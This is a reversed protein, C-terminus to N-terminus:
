MLSGLVWNVETKTTDPGLDFNKTISQSNRAITSECEPEDFSLLENSRHKWTKHISQSRSASTTKMRSWMLGGSKM